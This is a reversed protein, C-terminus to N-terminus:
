IAIKRLSYYLDKAKPYLLKNKFSPLLQKKLNTRQQSPIPSVNFDLHLSENKYEKEMHFIIDKKIGESFSLKYKKNM